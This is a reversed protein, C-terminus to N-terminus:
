GSKNWRLQQKTTTSITSTTTSTTTTTTKTTFARPKSGYFQKPPQVHYQQMISEPPEWVEEEVKNVEKSDQDYDLDSWDPVVGRM